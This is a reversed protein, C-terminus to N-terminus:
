LAGTLHLIFPLMPGEAGGYPFGTNISKINQCWPEYVEDHHGGEGNQCVHHFANHRREDVLGGM